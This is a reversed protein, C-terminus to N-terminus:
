REAEFEEAKSHVRRKVSQYVLFLMVASLIVIGSYAAYYRARNLAAGKVTQARAAAAAEATPVVFSVVSSREVPNGKADNLVVYAEHEGPELSDNLEVQWNGDKDSKFELEKPESFVMLTHNSNPKAKGKFLYKKAGEDSLEPTVENITLKDSKPASIVERYEPQALLQPKVQIKEGDPATYTVTSTVGSTSTPTPNVNSVTVTVSPISSTAAYGSVCEAMATITYSGNPVSTTNWDFYTQVSKQLQRSESSSVVTFVVNRYASNPTVSIRRTNSLTSGSPPQTISPTPCAPTPSVTAAQKQTTTTQSKVRLSFELDPLAYETGDIREIDADLEADDWYGTYRMKWPIIYMPGEPTQTIQVDRATFTNTTGSTHIDHLFSDCSGPRMKIEITQGQYFVHSSLATPFLYEATTCNNDQAKVLSGISFVVVTLGLTILGAKLHRNM